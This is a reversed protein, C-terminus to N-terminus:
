RRRVVQEAAEGRPPNLPASQDWRHCGCMAHGQFDPGPQAPGGGGRQGGDQGEVGRSLFVNNPAVQSRCSFGSLSVDNSQPQVSYQNVSHDFISNLFYDGRTQGELVGLDM